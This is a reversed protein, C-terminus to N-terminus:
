MVSRVLDGLGRQAATSTPPHQLDQWFVIQDKRPLRLIGTDAETIDRRALPLIRTRVYDSISLGCIAAARQVL